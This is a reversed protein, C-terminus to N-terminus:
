AGGERSSGSICPPWVASMIAAQLPYASHAAASMAAPAVCLTRIGGWEVAPRKRCTPDVQPPQPNCPPWPFRGSSVQAGALRHSRLLALM